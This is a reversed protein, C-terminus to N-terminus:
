IQAKGQVRGPALPWSFFNSAQASTLYCPSTEPAGVEGPGVWGRLLKWRHSCRCVSVWAWRVWQRWRGTGQACAAELGLCGQRGQCGEQPVGLLLASNIAPRQGRELELETESEENMLEKDTGSLGAPRSSLCSGLTRQKPVLVPLPETVWSQGPTQTQPCGLYAGVRAEEREGSDLCGEAM